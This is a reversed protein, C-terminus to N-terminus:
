SQISVAPCEHMFWWWAYAPRSPLPSRVQTSNRTFTICAKAYSYSGSPYEDLLNAATINGVTWEGGQM